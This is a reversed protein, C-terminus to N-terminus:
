IVVVVALEAWAYADAAFRSRELRSTNVSDDTLQQWCALDSKAPYLTPWGSTNGEGQEGARM